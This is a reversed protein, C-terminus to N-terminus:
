KKRWFTAIFILILALILFYYFLETKDLIKITKSKAKEKLISVIKNIDENSYSFKIGSNEVGYGMCPKKALNYFIGTKPKTYSLTLFILPKKLTKKATDIAKNINSVPSTFLYNKNIHKLLYIISAYDNSPPNLLYPNNDSIIVSVNQLNLKSFIVKLKEVAGEYRTPYIDKCKMPASADLIVAVTSKPLKVTTYGHTIVPRALALVLFVYALLYIFFRKKKTFSVQKTIKELIEKKFPLNKNKIFIVLCGLLLFLASPNLFEM